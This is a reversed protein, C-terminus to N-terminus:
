FPTTRYVSPKCLHGELYVQNPNMSEDIENTIDRAFVTIFLRSKGDIFKNYSRLQGAMSVADGLNLSVEPLLRESVTVPLIDKHESLRPVEVNFTHFGEGYLEHSFTPKSCIIGSIYVRNSENNMEFDM